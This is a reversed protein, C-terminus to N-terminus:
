FIVNLLYRTIKKELLCRGVSSDKKLKSENPINIEGDFIRGQLFFIFFIPLLPFVINLRRVM